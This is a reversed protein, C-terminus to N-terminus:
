IHFQSASIMHFVYFLVHFADTGEQRNESYKTEWADFLMNYYRPSDFFEHYM